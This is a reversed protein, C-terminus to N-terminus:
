QKIFLHEYELPKGTEWPKYTNCFEIREALPPHSSRWLKYLWGPRPNGLNETQLKVFATAAAHNNRTIELGFRDAQHEHYRSYFNGIPTLVLSFVNILIILLPLSAIDYVKDFRFRGRFRNIFYGATRHALYLSIIIMISAFFIGQVVHKLVYHGMEHSM